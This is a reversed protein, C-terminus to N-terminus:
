AVQIIQFDIFNFQPTVSADYSYTIHIQDVRGDEHQIEDSIAIHINPYAPIADFYHPNAQIAWMLGRVAAEYTHNGEAATLLEDFRESSSVDELSKLVM